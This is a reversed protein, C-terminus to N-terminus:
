GGGWWVSVREQLPKCRTRVTDKTGRSGPSTASSSRTTVSCSVRSTGMVPFTSGTHLKQKGSTSAATYILVKKEILPRAQPAHSCCGAWAVGFFRLRADARMVSKLLSAEQNGWGTVGVGSRRDLAEHRRLEVNRFVRNIHCTGPKKECDYSNNNRLGAGIRKGTRKIERGAAAAAGGKWM